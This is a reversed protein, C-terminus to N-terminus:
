RLRRTGRKRLVSQRSGAAFVSAHSSPSGVTTELARSTGEISCPTRYIALTRRVWNLAAVPGSSSSSAHRKLSSRADYTALMIRKM